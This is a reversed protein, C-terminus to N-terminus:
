ETAKWTVGGAEGQEGGMTDWDPLAVTKGALAHESDSLYEIMGKTVFSHCRPQGKFRPDPSKFGYVLLSNRFTPKEMDGNFTWRKDFEHGGQCGPCFIVWSHHTVGDREMCEM